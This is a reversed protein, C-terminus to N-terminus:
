GNNKKVEELYDNVICEICQQCPHMYTCLDTCEPYKHDCDSSFLSEAMLEIAKKYVDLEQKVKNLEDIRDLALSLPTFLWHDDGTQDIISMKNLLCHKLTDDTMM